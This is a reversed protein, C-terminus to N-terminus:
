AVKAAGGGKRTHIFASICDHCSLLDDSLIGSGGVSSWLYTILVEPSTLGQPCADIPGPEFKYQQEASTTAFHLIHKSSCIYSKYLLSLISVLASMQTLQCADHM